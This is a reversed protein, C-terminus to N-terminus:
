AFSSFLSVLCILCFPFFNDGDINMFYQCNFLDLEHDKQHSTTLLIDM